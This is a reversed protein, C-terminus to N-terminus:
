KPLQKTVFGKFKILYYIIITNEKQKFLNIYPFIFYYHYESIYPAEILFISKLSEPKNITTHTNSPHTYIYWM